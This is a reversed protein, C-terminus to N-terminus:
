LVRLLEQRLIWGDPLMGNMSLCRVEIAPPTWTTGSGVAGGDEENRVDAVAHSQMSFLVRLSNQALFVERDRNVEKLSMRDLPLEKELPRRLDEAKEFGLEFEDTFYDQVDSSFLVVEKLSPVSTCISVYPYHENNAVNLALSQLGNDICLEIFDRLRRTSSSGSCLDDPKM